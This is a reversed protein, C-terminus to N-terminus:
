LVVQGQDCQGEEKRGDVLDEGQKIGQDEAMDDIVVRRLILLVGGFLEEAADREQEARRDAHGEDGADRLVNLVVDDVSDRLLEARSHVGVADAMRQAERVLDEFILAAAFREAFQLLHAGVDLLEDLDEDVYQKAGQNADDEDHDVGKIHVPCDSRGEEQCDRQEARETGYEAQRM